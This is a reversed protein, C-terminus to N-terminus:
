VNMGSLPLRRDEGERLNWFSDKRTILGDTDFIWIDCGRVDVAFSEVTRGTTTVEFRRASWV